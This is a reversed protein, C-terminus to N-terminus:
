VARGQARQIYRSSTAFGILSAPSSSQLHPLFPPVLHELEDVSSLAPAIKKLGDSGQRGWLLQQLFLRCSSGAGRGM